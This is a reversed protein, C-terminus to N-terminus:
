DEEDTAGTTEAIKKSLRKDLDEAANAGQARLAQNRAAVEVIVAINRGPTVPMKMYPLKVGEITYTKEDLGLREYSEKENWQVLEVVMDITKRAKIASI